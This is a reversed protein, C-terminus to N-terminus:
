LVYKGVEEILTSEEEETIELKDVVAKFGCNKYYAKDPPIKRGCNTFNGYETVPQEQKESLPSGCRKCLM